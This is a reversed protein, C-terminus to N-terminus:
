KKTKTTRKKATKKKASSAKTATGDKLFIRAWFEDVEVTEGRLVKTRLYARSRNFKLRQKAV